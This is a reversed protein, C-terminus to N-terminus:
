FRRLLKWVFFIDMSNSLRWSLVYRSYWDLLAVFYLFGKELRIYTIDIEWAQNCEQIIIGRLLYPYKKRRRPTKPTVSCFVGNLALNGFKISLPHIQASGWSSWFSWQSQNVEIRSYETPNLDLL